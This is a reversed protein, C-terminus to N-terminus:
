AVQRAARFVSNNAVSIWNVDADENSHYVSRSM